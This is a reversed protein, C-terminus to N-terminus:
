ELGTPSASLSPPGPLPESDRWTQVGGLIDLLADVGDYTVSVVVTDPGEELIEAEPSDSVDGLARVVDVVAAYRDLQKEEPAFKFTMDIVIKM